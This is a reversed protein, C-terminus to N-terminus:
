AQTLTITWTGAPIPDTILVEYTVGNKSIRFGKYLTVTVTAVGADEGVGSVVAIGNASTTTLAFVAGVVSDAAVGAANADTLVIVSGVVADTAVGASVGDSLVFAAGISSALAVGSSSGDSGQANEGDGSATAVGSSAAITLWFAAALVTSAALGIAVTVGAWIAAALSDASGTGSSSGDAEVITSSSTDLELILSAFISASASGWTITTGTEGSNRYATECGSVQGTTYGVDAAESWSAPQTMGAPNTANYIAGVCLNTTLAAQGFAPAPTGAAQNTQGGQSRVAAAGVKTMGAIRLVTIITGAGPDTGSAITVTRSTTNTTLANAVFVGMHAAGSQHGENRILTFDTPAVSSTLDASAMPSSLASAEKTVFVVLLDGTAPSFASSTNPTNSTDANPAVALTVTAM